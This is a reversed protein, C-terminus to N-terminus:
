AFSMKDLSLNARTFGVLHILGELTVDNISSGNDLLILIFGNQPIFSKTPFNLCFKKVNFKRHKAHTSKLPCALNNKM